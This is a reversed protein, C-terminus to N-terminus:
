SAASAPSGVGLWWAVGINGAIQALYSARTGSAVEIAELGGAATRGHVVVAEGGVLGTYRAEIIKSTDTWVADERGLHRLRLQRRAVREDGARM